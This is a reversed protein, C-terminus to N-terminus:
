FKFAVGIQAPTTAWGLEVFFGVSEKVMFRTGLTIQYDFDLIKQTQQFDKATNPNTDSNKNITYLYGLGVGGFLDFKDTLPLHGNMRAYFGFVNSKIRYEYRWASNNNYDYKYSVAAGSYETHLGLGFNKNLGHEYKLVVTGYNKLRYDIFSKYDKNFDNAIRQGPPVGFGLSILNTGDDFSQSFSYCSFMFLSLALSSIKKM